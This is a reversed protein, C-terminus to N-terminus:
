VPGLAETVKWFCLKKKFGQLSIDTSINKVSSKIDELDSICKGKLVSKLEPFLCFDAASLDPSYPPHDMASIGKGVLFQSV